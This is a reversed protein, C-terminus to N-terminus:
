ALDTRRLVSLSIESQDLHFGDVELMRIYSAILDEEVVQRRKIGVLPHLSSVVDSLREARTM